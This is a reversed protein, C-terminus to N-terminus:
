HERQDLDPYLDLLIKPLHLLLLHDLLDLLHDILDM